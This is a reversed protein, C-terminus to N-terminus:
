KSKHQTARHSSPRSSPAHIGGQVASRGRANRRHWEHEALQRDGSRPVRSAFFAWCFATRHHSERQMGCAPPVAYGLNGPCTAGVQIGPDPNSFQRECPERLRAKVLNSSALCGVATIQIFEAWGKVSQVGPDAKPHRQLNMALAARGSSPRTGTPAPM